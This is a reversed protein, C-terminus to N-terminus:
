VRGVTAFLRVTVADTPLTVVVALSFDTGAAAELFEMTEPLLWDAFGLVNSGLWSTTNTVSWYLLGTEPNVTVKESLPAPPVNEVLVGTVSEKPCAM